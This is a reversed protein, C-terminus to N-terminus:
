KGGLAEILTLRSNLLNKRSGLYSLQSQHFSNQSTLVDSYSILGLKYQNLSEKYLNKSATLQKEYAELQEKYSDEQVIANNLIRQADKEVQERNAVASKYSARSEKLGAVIAGGTYIPLTIGASLSWTDSWKAEDAPLIPDSFGYGISGSLSVSPVISLKTKTFTAKAADERLKASKIDYRFETSFNSIENKLLEPLDDPLKEKIKETSIFTMASLYEVLNSFQMKAPPIAAEISALQQKQQLVVFGSVVGSEYRSTTISLMNKTNDRQKQLLALQSKGYIADFYVSAINISIKLETNLHDTETAKGNLKAAKYQQLEEGWSDLRYAADLTASATTFVSDFSPFDTSNKKAVRLSAYLSPLLQSRIIKRYEDSQDVRASSAMLTRNQQMGESIIENMIPDNFQEWWSDISASHLAICLVGLLLLVKGKLM